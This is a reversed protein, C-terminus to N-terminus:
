ARLCLSRLFSRHRRRSSNRSAAQFGGTEPDLSTLVHDDSNAREWTAFFRGDEARGIVTLEPPLPVSSSERSLDVKWVVFRPKKGAIIMGLRPSHASASCDVIGAPLTALGEFM